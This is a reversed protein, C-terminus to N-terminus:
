RGVMGYRLKAGQLYGQIYAMMHTVKWEPHVVEQELAAVARSDLVRVATCLGNGLRNLAQAFLLLDEGPVVGRNTSITASM